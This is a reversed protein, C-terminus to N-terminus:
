SESHPTVTLSEENINLLRVPYAPALHDATQAAAADNRFPAPGHTTPQTQRCASTFLVAGLTLIMGAWKM